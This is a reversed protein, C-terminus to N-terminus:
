GKIKRKVKDIFTEQLCNAPLDKNTILHLNGLTYLKKGYKEAIKQLSKVSYFAIHQGGELYLYWWNEIDEKPLIDTTFLLSPSFALMKEIEELPEPLHEFVELATLLDFNGESVEYERAFINKCLPDNHFFALGRDRMLRTFIGYGGGYDVFKGNIPFFKKIIREAQMARFLNRRMVGNDSTPLTDSYVENLWYPKETQMFECSDCFFYSIDYKGIIKKSFLLRTSGNCIKCNNM